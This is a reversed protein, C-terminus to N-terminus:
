LGNIIPNTQKSHELSFIIPYYNRPILISVIRIIRKIIYYVGAYIAKFLLSPYPEILTYITVIFLKSLDISIFLIMKEILAECNFDIIISLAHIIHSIYSVIFTFIILYSLLTRTECVDLCSFHLRKLGVLNLVYVEFCKKSLDIM